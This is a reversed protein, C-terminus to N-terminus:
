AAKRKIGRNEFRMGMIMAHEVRRIEEPRMWYEGIKRKFGEPKVMDMEITIADGGIYYQRLDCIRRPLHGSIGMQASEIVRLREGNFLRTLADWCDQRFEHRHAELIRLSERNNEHRHVPDFPLLLQPTNRTM